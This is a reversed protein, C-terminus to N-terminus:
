ETRSADCLINFKKDTETSEESKATIWEGGSVPRYQLRVFTLARNMLSDTVAEDPWLVYQDPNNVKLELVRSSEPSVSSFM